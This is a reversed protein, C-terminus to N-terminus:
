RDGRNWGPPWAALDDHGVVIHSRDADIHAHRRRRWADIVAADSTAIETAAQAWGDILARQLAHSAPPLTWDSRARQVRYGLTRFRREAADTADPGLAPGFGKDTRQHENVLAVIAADASDEPACAIRGDYSLAFLAISGHEVCRAALAGLWAESVLDLLASATVLARGEFISRDDLTSLDLCRTAVDPTRSIAALLAPDHDLLLFKAARTRTFGATMLYRLNSGTGAALDLIRPVAGGPLSEIVSCTLSMSRAAHDAPERLALWEASFGSM